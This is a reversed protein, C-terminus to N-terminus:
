QQIIYCNFHIFQISSFRTKAPQVSARDQCKDNALVYLLSNDSQLDSMKSIIEFVIENKVKLSNKLDCVFLILSVICERDM